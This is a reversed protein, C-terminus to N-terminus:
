ERQVAAASDVEELQAVLDQTARILKEAKEVM